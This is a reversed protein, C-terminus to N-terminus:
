HFRTAGQADGREYATVSADLDKSLEACKRAMRDVHPKIMEMFQLVAAGGVAGIFATTRLITILAQLTRSVNNLVDSINDFRKAMNRVAPIDMYVEDM